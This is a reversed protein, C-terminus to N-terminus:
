ELHAVIRLMRLFRPMEALDDHPRGPGRRVVMAMTAAAQIRVRLAVSSRCNGVGNETHPIPPSIGAKAGGQWPTWDRFGNRMFPTIAVGSCPSNISSHYLKLSRCFTACNTLGGDGVLFLVRSSGDRRAFGPCSGCLRRNASLGHTGRGSWSM